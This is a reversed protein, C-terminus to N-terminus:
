GYLVSRSWLYKSFNCKLMTHFCFVYQLEIAQVALIKSKKKSWLLFQRSKISIKRSKHAAVFKMKGTVKGTYTFRVWASDMGPYCEICILSSPEFDIGAEEKVERKVGEQVSLCLSIYQKKVYWALVNFM